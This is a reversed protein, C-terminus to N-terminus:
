QVFIQLVNLINSFLNLFFDCRFYDISNELKVAIKVRKLNPSRLLKQCPLSLTDLAKENAQWIRM